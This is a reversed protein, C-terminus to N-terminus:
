NWDSDALVILTWLSATALALALGLSSIRTLFVLKKIKM